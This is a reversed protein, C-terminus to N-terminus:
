QHSIINVRILCISCDYASRSGTATRQMCSDGDGGRDVEDDGGVIGLDRVDGRLLSAVVLALAAVAVEVPLEDDGDGVERQLAFRLEGDLLQRELEFGARADDM